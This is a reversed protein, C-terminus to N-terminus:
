RLVDVTKLRHVPWYESGVFDRFRGAPLLDAPRHRWEDSPISPGGFLLGFLFKQFITFGISRGGFLLFVAVAALLSHSETQIVHSNYSALHRRHFSRFEAETDLKTKLLEM